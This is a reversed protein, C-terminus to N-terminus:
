ECQASESLAAGSMEREESLKLFEEFGIGDSPKLEKDIIRLLELASRFYQQRGKDIWFISGQWTMHQQYLIEIKLTMRKAQEM